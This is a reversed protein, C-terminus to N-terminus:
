DKINEQVTKALKLMTEMMREYTIKFSTLHQFVNSMDEPKIQDHYGHTCLDDIFRGIAHMTTSYIVEASQDLQPINMYQGIFHQLKMDIEQEKDDTTKYM